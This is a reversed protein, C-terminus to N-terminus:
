VSSVSPIAEPLMRILNHAKHELTTFIALAPPYAKTM